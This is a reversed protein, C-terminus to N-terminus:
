EDVVGMAKRVQANFERRRQAHEIAADKSLFGERQESQPSMARVPTPFQVVVGDGLDGSM